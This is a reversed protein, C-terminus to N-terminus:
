GPGLVRDDLVLLASELREDVEVLLVLVLLHDDIRRTRQHRHLPESVRGLNQELLRLALNSTQVLVGQFAVLHVVRHVVV